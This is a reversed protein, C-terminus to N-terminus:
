LIAGNRLDILRSYFVQVDFNKYLDTGQRRTVGLAATAGNKVYNLFIEEGYTHFWNFEMGAATCADELEAILGTVVTLYQRATVGTTFLVDTPKLGAATFPTYDAPTFPLRQEPRVVRAVMAAAEARTLPKDPAFTGYADVGTLIGANYFRLVDADATDPLTTITNISQLLEDPLIAALMTLFDMRTAQGAGDPVDVGLAELCRVYPAYWPLKEGPVPIPDGTIAQNMRAAIAAVEGVTLEQNPAFGTDTGTMLGVEYCTQAAGAYWSGEKVDAYGPYTNKSPFATGPAAAAAPVCLLAAALVLALLKKM